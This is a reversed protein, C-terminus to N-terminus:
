CFVFYFFSVLIIFLIARFTLLKTGKQSNEFVSIRKRLLEDEMNQMDLILSRIDRIVTHYVDSSTKSIM